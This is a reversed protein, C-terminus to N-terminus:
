SSSPQKLNQVLSGLAGCWVDLAAFKRGAGGGGAGTLDLVGKVQDIRADILGDLILHVVIEEIKSTEEGLVQALHQLKVRRYPRVLMVIARHQFDSSISEAHRLIYPDGEKKMEWMCKNFANVDCKLHALRLQNVLVIDKDKEYAKANQSDLVNAESGSLMSAIVTYRLCQKAKTPNGLEDYLTFASYFDGKALLWQGEDGYVTGWIEKLISQSRPDVLSEKSEKADKGPAGGGEKKEPQFAENHTLLKRDGTIQFKMVYVDLLESRFQKLDDKGNPLRLTAHVMELTKDAEPTAGRAIMTKCLKMRVDFLRRSFGGGSSKELAECSINYVQEAVKVDESKGSADLITNIAEQGENNTVYTMLTFMKKYNEIFESYKKDDLLLLSLNLAAKFVNTQGEKDLEKMHGDALKLCDRFHGIAAKPDERKCDDGLFYFNSVRVDLPQDDEPDPEPEKAKAAAAGGAKKDDAKAAPKAKPKEDGWDDDGGGGGADGWDDGGGGGDDGGGGGWDDDNSM